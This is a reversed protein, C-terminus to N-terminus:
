GRLHLLSNLTIGLNIRDVFSGAECQAWIRLNESLVTKPLGDEFYEPKRNIVWLEQWHWDSLFNDRNMPSEGELTDIRMYRLPVSRTCFEDEKLLTGSLLTQFLDRSSPDNFTIVLTSGAPENKLLLAPRDKEGRVYNFLIPTGKGLSQNISSLTKSSPPTVVVLRHGDHFRRRGTGETITLTNKLLLVDCNQVPDPPFVKADPSDVYHVCRVTSAFLVEETEGSEMEKRVSRTYDYIGWLSRFCQEQFRIDLELGDALRLLIGFDHTKWHADRWTPGARRDSQVNLNIHGDQSALIVKLERDTRQRLITLVCPLHLTGQTDDSSCLVVDVFMNGYNFHRPTDGVPYPFSDFGTSGEDLISRSSIGALISAVGSAFRPTELWIRSDLGQPEFDEPPLKSNRKMSMTLARMNSLVSDYMALMEALKSDGFSKVIPSLSAISANGYKKLEEHSPVVETLIWCAKALNLYAQKLGTPLDSRSSHQFGDSSKPRGRVASELEGRGKLFWWTGARVWQAFPVNASSVNAAAGLSFIANFRQVRTLFANFADEGLNKAVNRLSVPPSKLPPRTPSRSEVSANTRDNISTEQHQQKVAGVHSPTRQEFVPSPFNYGLSLAAQTTTPQPTPNPTLSNGFSADFDPSFPKLSSFAKLDETDDKHALCEEELRPGSQEVVIEPSLPPDQNHSAHIAAFSKSHSDSAPGSISDRKHLSETRADDRQSDRDSPHIEHEPELSHFGTSKRRLPPPRFSADDDTSENQHGQSLSWRIDPANDMSPSTRRPYHSVDPGHQQQWPSTPLLSKRVDISPLKAEDGGEGIVVPRASDFNVRLGKRRPPKRKPYSTSQLGAHGVVPVPPQRPTISVEDNLTPTTGQQQTSDTRNAPRQLFEVLDNGQQGQLEDNRSVKADSSFLKGRWRHKGLFKHESEASDVASANDPM